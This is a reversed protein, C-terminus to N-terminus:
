RPPKSDKPVKHSIDVITAQPNITFIVGKMIGVFGDEDGFDTLLTILHDLKIKNVFLNRLINFMNYCFYECCALIIKRSM